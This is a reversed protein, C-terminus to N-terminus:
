GAGPCGRHTCSAPPDPSASRASGPTWAPGSGKTTCRRTAIPRSRAPRGKRARAQDMLTVAVSSVVRGNPSGAGPAGFVGGAGFNKNGLAYTSTADTYNLPDNTCIYIHTSLNKLALLGNDLVYDGVVNSM